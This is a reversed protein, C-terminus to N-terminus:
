KQRNNYKRMHAIVGVLGKTSLTSAFQAKYSETMSIGDIAFDYIMWEGSTNKQLKYSVKFDSGKNSTVISQVEVRADESDDFRSPLFKVKQDSYVAFIKAYNNTVMTTFEKIFDKREDETAGRWHVPGIVIRSMVATDIKPLLTNKIVNVLVTNKDSSIDKNSSLQSLLSDSMTELMKVPASAGFCFVSFFLGVIIIKNKLM